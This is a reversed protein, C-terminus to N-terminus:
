LPSNMKSALLPICNGPTNFDTALEDITVRGSKNHRRLSVTHWRGDDVRRSTAKVKVVGSGLNMLLYVHGDMQEFAFFDSVSKSAGANYM